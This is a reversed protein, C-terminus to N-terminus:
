PKLLTCVLQEKLANADAKTERTGLLTNNYIVHWCVKAPSRKVKIMSHM